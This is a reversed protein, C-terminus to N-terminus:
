EAGEVERGSVQQQIIQSTWAILLCLGRNQVGWKRRESGAYGGHIRALQEHYVAADEDDVVSLDMDPVNARLWPIVSEKEIQASVVDVAIGDHATTDLAANLEMVLYTLKTLKM